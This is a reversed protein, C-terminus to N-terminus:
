ILECCTMKCVEKHRLQLFIEMTFSVFSLLHCSENLNLVVQSLQVIIGNPSIHELHDWNCAPNTKYLQPVVKLSSFLWEMKVLRSM